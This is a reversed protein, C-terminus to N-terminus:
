FAVKAVAFIAFGIVIVHVIVSVIRSANPTM